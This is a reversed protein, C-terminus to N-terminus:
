NPRQHNTPVEAWTAVRDIPEEDEADHGAGSGTRSPLPDVRAEIARLAADKDYLKLEVGNKTQKIAAIAAIEQDSLAAFGKFVVNGTSKGEADVEDCFYNAMRAYATAERERKAKLADLLLFPRDAQFLELLRAKVDPSNRFRRANAPSYVLGALEMAEQESKGAYLALAGRERNSRIRSM